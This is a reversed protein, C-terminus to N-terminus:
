VDVDTNQAVGSDILLCYRVVSYFMVEAPPGAPWSPDEIGIDGVDGERAAASIEVRCRDEVPAELLNRPADILKM